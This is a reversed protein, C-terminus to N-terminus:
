VRSVAALTGEGYQGQRFAPAMEERITQGAYGDTIFQELDYGVEFRVKRDNVAIVLLVGNDKGRDGIGRGGNEFMKVAYDEITAYPAFTDITAVAVVDGSAQQLSRFLSEIARRSDPDIVHAFDNVPETLAPPLPQASARAALAFVAVLVGCWLRLDRLSPHM